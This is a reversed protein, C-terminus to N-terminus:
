HILSVFGQTNSVLNTVSETKCPFISKHPRLYRKDVAENNKDM